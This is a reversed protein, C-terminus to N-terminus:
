SEINEETGDERYLLTNSQANTTRKRSVVIMRKLTVIRGKNDLTHIMESPENQSLDDQIELHL